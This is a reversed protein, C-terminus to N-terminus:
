VWLLKKTMDELTEFSYNNLKDQVIAWLEEIPSLDPSNPPWIELHNKFKQNIFELSKKGVHCSANDQQFFLNNDLREIDSKYSEVAQLYSFSSMTGTVFILRGVGNRSLGGAVMIGKPFKEIPKCIKEYLKGEGSKYENYCKSDLCIQNTQRNLTPNLIFRKEDTSFIDKDYINNQKLMNLFELRRNKDKERFFINEKIIPKKLLTSLYINVTGHSVYADFKKKIALAIKRSSAKNIGNFKNRAINIIFNKIDLSMKNRRKRKKDIFTEKDKWRSVTMSSTGAIKAFEKNKLYPYEKSLIQIATRKKQRTLNLKKVM